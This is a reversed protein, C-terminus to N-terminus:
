PYISYPDENGSGDGHEKNLTYPVGHVIVEGKALLNGSGDIMSVVDGTANKVVLANGSTPAELDNEVNDTVGEKLYFDGSQTIEAVQQNCESNMLIFAKDGLTSTWNTYSEHIQGKLVIVNGNRVFRV